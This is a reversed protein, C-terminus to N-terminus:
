NSQSIQKAANDMRTLAASGILRIVGLAIVLIVAIMVAYETISQGKQNKM